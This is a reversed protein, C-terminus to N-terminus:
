SYYNGLYTSFKGFQRLKIVVKTLMVYGFRLKRIPLPGNTVM